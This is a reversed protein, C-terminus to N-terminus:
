LFLEQAYKVGSILHEVEETTSYIGFSARTTAVVGLRDMVPQCCHHGVRVAVGFSDLITGLDHPHVGELDFSVIGMSKEPGFVTVGPLKELEERTIRSLECERWGAAIRDISSLYDIASGLGIAEVYPPTGAEFKRSGSVFTSHTMTVREVMGGGTQYAPMVDWLESRGYVAGIGTPGYVKHGSLVYFDCGLDKVDLPLHPAGQAGDIVSIAGVKRLETCIKKIPNLTGLSNSIHGFAGIKVGSTLKSEFSNWDLEGDGTMAVTKVIAGTADAVQQWPVINSHHDLESLLVVDGPGLNSKGLSWALLNLGETCGKTFVIEEASEAGLFKATKNRAQEYLHTSEQSLSHVGRHINSNTEALASVLSDIVCQPKQATAASDLYRLPHGNIKRRFIPFDERIRAALDWDFEASM